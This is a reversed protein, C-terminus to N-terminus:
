LYASFYSIFTVLNNTHDIAIALAKGRVMIPEEAEVESAAGDDCVLSSVCDIIPDNVVTPCCSFVMSAVCGGSAEGPVYKLLLRAFLFTFCGSHAFM